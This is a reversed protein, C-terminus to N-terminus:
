GQFSMGGIGKVKKLNKRKKAEGVDHPLERALSQVLVVPLVRLWQLSLALDKVPQVM